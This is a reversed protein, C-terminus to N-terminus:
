RVRVHNKMEFDEDSSCLYLIGEVLGIISPIGTWCFLIYLIGLGIKGLYFKHVGIGGLLIALLGAALKDRQPWSPDASSYAPQYAGQDNSRTGPEYYGSASNVPRQYFSQQDAPRQYATQQGAPQRYVPQQDAPQQYVTQRGAYAQAAAAATHGSQERVTGQESTPAGGGQVPVGCNTCFKAGDPLQSGCERCFM